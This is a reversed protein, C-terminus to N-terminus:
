RSTLYNRLRALISTNEKNILNPTINPSHPETLTDLQKLRDLGADVQEQSNIEADEFRQMELIIEGMSKITNILEEEINKLPIPTPNLSM